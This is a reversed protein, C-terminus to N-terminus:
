YRVPRPMVIHREREATSTSEWAVCVKLVQRQSYRVTGISPTQTKKKRKKKKRKLGTCWDGERGQQICSKLIDRVLEGREAAAKCTTVDEDEDSEGALPQSLLESSLCRPAVVVPASMGAGDFKPLKHRVM